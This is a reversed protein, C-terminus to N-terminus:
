SSDQKVFIILLLILKKHEEAIRKVERTGETHTLSYRVQSDFPFYTIEVPCTSKFIAQPIWLVTGDDYVVVRAERNENLREDASYVYFVVCARACM